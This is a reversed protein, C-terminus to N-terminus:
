LNDHEKYMKVLKKHDKVATEEDNYDIFILTNTLYVKFGYKTITSVLGSKQEQLQTQMPTGIAQIEGLNIIFGNSNQFIM